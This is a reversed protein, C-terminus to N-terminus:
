ASHRRKSSRHSLHEKGIISNGMASCLVTATRGLVQPIRRNGPVDKGPFTQGTAADILDSNATLRQVLRGAFNLENSNCV